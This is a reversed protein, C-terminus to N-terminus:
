AVHYPEGRHVALVVERQRSIKVAYGDSATVCLAARAEIVEHRVATRADVHVALVCIEGVAGHLFTIGCAVASANVQASAAHLRREDIVVVGVLAASCDVYVALAEDVTGHEGVVRRTVARACVEVM